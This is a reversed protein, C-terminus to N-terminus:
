KGRRHVSATDADVDPAPETPSEVDAAENTDDDAVVDADDDADDNTELVSFSHVLPVALPKGTTTMIPRENFFKRFDGDVRLIFVPWDTTARRFFDPINLASTIEYEDQSTSLYDGSTSLCIEYNGKRIQDLVYERTNCSTLTKGKKTLFHRFEDTPTDCIQEAMDFKTQSIICDGIALRLWGDRM